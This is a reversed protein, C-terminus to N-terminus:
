HKFLQYQEVMAKYIRDNAHTDRYLYLDDLKNIHNERMGPNKELYYLEEMIESVTRKVEGPFFKYNLGGRSNKISTDFQYYIIPKEMLAFDLGVSSYDTILCDNNILLDQVTENGEVLIDVFNSQFCSTYKQFNTHLYFKVSINNKKAFEELAQSRILEDFSKFFLSKKFEEASKNDLGERWSPMIVISKMKKNKELRNFLADFRSLGSLVVENENYGFENIVMDQERKSSTIFLNTFPSEENKGYLHTMDRVGLIGHQLFVKFKKALIEKSISDVVPCAYNTGHSSVLISSKLFVDIHEKSKYYVIRNTYDKLNDFDKTIDSILYYTEFQDSHNDVLYKFYALGTDQAKHPYETVLVIPKELVMEHTSQAIRNLYYEYVEESILTVKSALKGGIITPYFFVCMDNNDPSTLHITNQSIDGFQINLKFDDVTQNIFSFSFLFDFIDYNYMRSEKNRAVSLIDTVSFSLRIKTTYFGNEEKNIALVEGSTNTTNVSNRLKVQGIVNEIPYFLTRINMNIYFNSQDTEISDTSHNVYYSKYSPLVDRSIRLNNAVSKYLYYQHIPSSLSLESNSKLQHYKNIIIPELNADVVAVSKQGGIVQNIMKRTIVVSKDSDMPLEVIKDANKLYYPQPATMQELHFKKNKVKVLVEKKDLIELCFFDMKLFFWEVEDLEKTLNPLYSSVNIEKSEIEQRYFEESVKAMSFELKMQNNPGIKYFQYQNGHQEKKTYTRSEELWFSECTIQESKEHNFINIGLELNLIEKEKFENLDYLNILESIPFVGEVVHKFVGDSMQETHNITLPKGYEIGKEKNMAVIELAINPSMLTVLEFAISIDKDSVQYDLIRHKLYYSSLDPGSSKELTLHRSHNSFIYYHDDNIEFSIIADTVFTDVYIYSGDHVFYLKDEQTSFVKNLISADVKVGDELAELNFYEEGNYLSINSYLNQFKLFIFEDHKTMMVTERIETKLKTEQIKKPTISKINGKTFVEEIVRDSAKGDELYCYKDYFKQYKDSLFQDDLSKIDSILEDTTKSFPGPAENIFDFYFGRLNDKYHELDYTFFLLPRKTNAFDFMVSSYDTICVDTILYLEQINPYSSVNLIDGKFKKPLNISQGTAMHGRILLLYEDSLEEVFKELDLELNFKKLSDDRFTPAYLIIKRFERELGLKELVSNSLRDLEEQSQYFLDNRPYGLELVEKNYNFATKFNETAYESPSILYDWQSVAFNVRELYTANRGIIVDLDNQMKKLPTGHWTQLYVTKKSKILYTPFNQNNVWYGARALYYYYKLGLRIVTKTNETFIGDSGNYIWVYKYPLDMEIMRDYIAKPSDGISKGVNSEFVVLNKDVPLLVRMVTYLRKMVPFYYKSRRYKGFLRSKIKKLTEKM